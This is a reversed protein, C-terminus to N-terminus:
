SSYNHLSSLLRIFTNLMQHFLVSLTLVLYDPFLSDGIGSKKVM